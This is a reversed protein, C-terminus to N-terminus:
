QKNWHLGHCHLNMRDLSLGDVRHGAGSDILAVRRWVCARILLAQGDIMFGTIIEPTSVSRVIGCQIPPTLDFQV